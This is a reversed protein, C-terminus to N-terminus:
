KHLCKFILIVNLSVKMAEWVRGADGEAVAQSYERSLMADYMFIISDALAQDGVFPSDEDDSAESGSFEGREGEQEKGKGKKKQSKKKRGKKGKKGKKGKERPVPRTEWQKNAKPVLYEDATDLTWNGDQAYQYAKHTSYRKYLIDAKAYLDEFSPM